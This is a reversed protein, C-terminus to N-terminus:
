APLEAARIDYFERLDALHDDDTLRTDTKIAQGVSDLEARSKADLMQQQYARAVGAQDALQQSQQEGTPQPEATGEATGPLRPTEGADLAAVADTSTSRALRRGSRGESAEVEGVPVAEYSGTLIGYIEALIKRTAKGIIADTGMGANVRVAIRRDENGAEVRELSMAEGALLWTARYPVLAGGSKLQPVQPMLRLDSLGPFERVARSFFNKTLYPQASIINFENNVPRAGRLRAEIFCHKVTGVDYGGTKDKDTKFGLSTGQLGMVDAMMADTILENLRRIGAAMLLGQQVTGVAGAASLDCQRIVDEIEALQQEGVALTLGGGGTTAVATTKAKAKAM